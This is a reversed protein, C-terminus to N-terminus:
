FVFPSFRMVLGESLKEELLTHDFQSKPDVQYIEHYTQLSPNEIIYSYQNGADVHKFSIQKREVSDFWFNMFDQDAAGIKDSYAVVDEYPKCTFTYNDGVEVLEQPSCTQSVQTYKERNEEDRTSMESLHHALSIICILVWFSPSLLVALSTLIKAKTSLDKEKWVLFVYLPFVCVFALGFGITKSTRNNSNTNM